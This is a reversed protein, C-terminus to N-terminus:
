DKIGVGMGGVIAAALPVLASADKGLFWGIIGILGFALWVAGRKTSNQSWDIGFKM